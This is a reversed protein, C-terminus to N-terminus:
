QEEYVSLMLVAAKVYKKRLEAVGVSGLMGPMHIDLLIVDPARDPRASLAEAVTGHVLTCRMDAEDGILQAIGGRLVTDDDVIAVEIMHVQRDHVHRPECRMFM